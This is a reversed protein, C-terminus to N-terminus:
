SLARLPHATAPWPSKFFPQVMEQTVEEIQAPNWKPAHDKDVALARIGEVTESSHKSSTGSRKIHQTHFCHRVMSREMRLNDALSMSRARRIQELVVHLMLPSRKRLTAATERAWDSPDAELAQIIDLVTPLAFFHDIKPKLKNCAERFDCTFFGFAM